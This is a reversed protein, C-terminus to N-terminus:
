ITAMITYESWALAVASFRCLLSLKENAQLFARVVVMTASRTALCVATAWRIVLRRCSDGSVNIALSCCHFWNRSRRHVALHLDTGTNLHFMPIRSACRRLTSRRRWLTGHCIRVDVASVQRPGHRAYAKRPRFRATGASLLCINECRICRCSKHLHSLQLSRLRRRNPIRRSSLWPLSIM